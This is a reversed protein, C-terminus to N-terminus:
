NFRGDSRRKGAKQFILRLIHAPFSSLTDSLSSASGLEFGLSLTFGTIYRLANRDANHLYGDFGM